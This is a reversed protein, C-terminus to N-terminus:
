KLYARGEVRVDVYQEPVGRDGTKLKNRIALYSGAQVRPDGLTNFRVVYPRDKLQIQLENARAPLVISKTELGAIQLQRIVESIFEVTEVPLAQKGVYVAIGSEDVVVPTDSIKNVVDSLKVLPVGQKNIYFAGSTGALVFSPTSIGLHIQPNKGIIPLSVEVESVEPFQKQITSSLEQNNFTLKNRNGGQKLTNSIFDAYVDKDRQLSRSDKDAEITVIPTHSLMSVYALLAIISVFTVASILRKAPARTTSVENTQQFRGRQQEPGSRSSSYTYIRADSREISSQRTRTKKNKM